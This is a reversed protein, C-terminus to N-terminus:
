LRGSSSVLNNWARSLLVEQLSCSSFSNYGSHDLRGVLITSKLVSINFDIIRSDIASTALAGNMISAVGSGSSGSSTSFVINPSTAPLNSSNNAVAVSMPNGSGSSSISVVM